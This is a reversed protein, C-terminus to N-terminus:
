ITKTQLAALSTRGNLHCIAIAMADAADEPPEEKLNLLRMIMRIVQAKQATGTGVVAQKVRRPAYECIPCGTAAAEALVVGRAHGLLMATKVNRAFFVGEVAVADPKWEDLCIRLDQRLHFLCASLSLKQPNKVCGYWLAELRNGTAQVVGLGTCRLSTDVGLVRYSAGSGEPRMM